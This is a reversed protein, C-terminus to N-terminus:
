PLRLCSSLGSEPGSQLPLLLHPDSVFVLSVDPICFAGQPLGLPCRHNLSGQHSEAKRHSPTISQMCAQSVSLSYQCWSIPRLHPLNLNSDAKGHLSLMMATHGFMSDMGRPEHVRAASLEAQPRPIHLLARLVPLPPTPANLMWACDLPAQDLGLKCCSTNTVDRSGTKGKGQPKENSSCWCFSM